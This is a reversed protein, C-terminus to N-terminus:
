GSSSPRLRSGSWCASRYSSDCKPGHCLFPVNAQTRVPEGFNPLWRQAPLVTRRREGRNARSPETSIGLSLVRTRNEDGAGNFTRTSGSCRGGSVGGVHSRSRSTIDHLLAAGSERSPGPHHPGPAQARIGGSAIVEAPRNGDGAAGGDHTRVAVGLAGTPSVHEFGSVDSRIMQHACAACHGRGAEVRLASNPRRPRERDTAIPPV